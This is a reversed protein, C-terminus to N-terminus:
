PTGLHRAGRARSEINMNRAEVVRLYLFRLSAHGVLHVKKPTRRPVGCVVSSRCISETIKIAKTYTAVQRPYTHVTITLTFTKGAVFCITM